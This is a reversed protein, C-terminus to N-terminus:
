EKGTRAISFVVYIAFFSLSIAGLAILAIVYEIPFNSANSVLNILETM